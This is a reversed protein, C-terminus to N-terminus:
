QIKWATLTVFYKTEQGEKKYEKGDINFSVTIEEGEMRSDLLSVKDQTLQMQLKQPYQEITEIVFERKRFNESVQVTPRILILVGKKEM